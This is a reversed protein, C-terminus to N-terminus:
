EDIAEPAKKAESEELLIQRRAVSFLFPIELRYIKDTKQVASDVVRKVRAKGGKWEVLGWNDTLDEPRILGPPAMYFRQCGVSLNARRHWKKQDRLFDARSAKCEVLISHLGARKWGIADPIEYAYCSFEVLVVGCKM